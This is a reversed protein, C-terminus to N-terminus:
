KLEEVELVTMGTHGAHGLADNSLRLTVFPRALDEALDYATEEDEAEVEIHEIEEYHHKVMVKYTHMKLGKIISM